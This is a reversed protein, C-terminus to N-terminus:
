ALRWFSELAENFPAGLQPVSHGAGSLVLKKAGAEDALRDIVADFMASHGGSVGLVPFPADRLAAPDIEAEWPGREARLLPVTTAFPPPLPDPLEVSTGVQATFWALFAADSMSADRRREEIATVFAATEAHEPVLGFAPPEVVTLSAILEPRRAAAVLSVVGGYSFGVLHARDGIVDAVDGADVEFDERPTPPSAGFGRRNVAEIAWREGLPQQAAWALDAPLLDGHVLVVRPGTTGWRFTELEAM